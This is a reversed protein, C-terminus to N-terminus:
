NKLSLPPLQTDASVARYNPFIWLIRKSQKAETMSGLSGADLSTSVSNSGSQEDSDCDSEPSSALNDPSTRVPTVIRPPADASSSQAFATGPWFLLVLASAALANDVLRLGRRPLVAQWTTSSSLTVVSTRRLM